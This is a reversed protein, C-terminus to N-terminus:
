SKSHHKALKSRKRLLLMHDIADECAKTERRTLKSSKLRKNEDRVELESKMDTEIRLEMVEIGRRLTEVAKLMENAVRSNM